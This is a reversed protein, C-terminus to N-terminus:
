CDARSQFKTQGRGDAPAYLDNYRIAVARLSREAASWHSRFIEGLSETAEASGRRRSRLLLRGVRSTAAVVQRALGVLPRTDTERLVHHFVRVARDTEAGADLHGSRVMHDLLYARHWYESVLSAADAVALVYVVKRWIRRLLYKVAFFPLTLCGAPSFFRNSGKGLQSRVMPQVSRDHVRAIAAPMRRRFTSEFALDVLPLPILATLGAATADSYVRWDFATTATAASAVTTPEMSTMMGTLRNEFRFDFVGGGVRHAMPLKEFKSNQRGRRGPEMPRRCRRSSAWEM